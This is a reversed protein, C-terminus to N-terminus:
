EVPVRYKTHNNVAIYKEKIQHMSEYLNLPTDRGDLGLFEVTDVGLERVLDWAQAADLRLYTTPVIM